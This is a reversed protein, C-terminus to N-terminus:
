VVELLYYNKKGKQIVLYRGHLLHSDSPRSSVDIKEKNVSVANEQISRRAEGKSSFVKTHEGLISVWDSGSFQDKALKYYPVGEFVELIESSSLRQLSETTSKGFLIESAEIAKHLADKGHVRETVEGAVFKQLKRLHPALAHEKELEALSERGSLSFIRAVAPIDEDAVNLFFQYLKYPSTKAPDLWINGSATKGFKSGDAKLLLKTTLAFAEGGEKKRILEIGTVINGWQDS